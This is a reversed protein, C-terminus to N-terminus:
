AALPMPTGALDVVTEGAPPATLPAAESASLKVGGQFTIDCVNQVQIRGQVSSDTLSSSGRMEVVVAPVADRMDAKLEFAASGDAKITMEASGPFAAGSAGLGGALRDMMAQDLKWRSEGGSSVFTDDGMLLKLMGAAETLDDYLLVPMERDATEAMAYLMEGMTLGGGSLGAGCLGYAEGMDAGSGDVWVRGEPLEAGASRLLATLAPAEIWMGSDSSIMQFEVNGLMGALEQGGEMEQDLLAGLLSLDMTGKVNVAKGGWLGSLKVAFPLERDGNVSDLLRATGSFDLEMGLNGSLAQAQKARLGNLVAFSRDIEEIMKHKDIVVATRAGRDWYVECGLAQSFFRLPALTSGGKVFSAADMVMVQDGDVVAQNTGVVHKLTTEGLVARVTKTGRDYEVEAGLAELVPRMPVMTRGDVIEAGAGSFDVTKGNVQVSVGGSQAAPEGAAVFVSTPGDAGGIVAGGANESEAAAPAALTLAMLLSLFLTTLKKM